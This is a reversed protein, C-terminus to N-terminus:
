SGERLQIVGEKVDDDLSSLDNTDGDVAGWYITVDGTGAAPAEWDFTWSTLINQPTGCAVVAHCDYYTYTTMRPPDPDPYAPQCNVSDVGSDTFYHGARDGNADEITVNVGNRNDPPNGTMMGRHEGILNMTFTYREGPVYAPDGGVNGWAPFVDIQLDIMGMSDIHCHSCKIGWDHQSGTGYIGGGGGRLPPANADAAENWSPIFPFANATAAVMAVALALLTLVLKIRM